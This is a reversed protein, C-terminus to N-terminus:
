WLGGEESPKPEPHDLGLRGRASDYVIKWTAKDHASVNPDAMMKAAHDMDTRLSGRGRGLNALAREVNQEHQLKWDEAEQRTLQLPSASRCNCTVYYRQPGATQHGRIVPKHSM